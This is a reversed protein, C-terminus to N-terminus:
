PKNVWFGTGKGLTKSHLTFDLYGKDAIYGALGGSADLIPAYFYWESLLPDWAWLSTLNLPVVEPSPPVDSLSKNFASASVDNGTAVLNWGPTLNPNSLNFSPGAQNGIVTPLKANLWYGEGPNIVSLVGYGKSEAYTQLPGAALSPAYFQWRTSAADWKWASTVVATDGFLAAVSISQKLSNGLLNWGQVVILPYAAGPGVVIAQTVQAAALYDANGAQNANVLCDGESVGTVTQGSVTCVAPTSSGLTLTSGSGGGTASLAGSGGVFLVPASGFHISQSAQGVSFTQLIQAAANTFPDGAQNATITCIGASIGTVSNGTVRCVSPTSTSFSVSLGATSAASITGVAEVVISPAVGFSLTQNGKSPTVAGSSVSAASTGLSNSATVSFTYAVGNTLGTVTHVLASTGAQADVGGAPVSTVTYAIIGTGGQVTPALLNVTAQANGATVSSITPVGPIELLSQKLIFMDTDGVKSLPPTSLGAGTFFGGLYVKSGADIPISFALGNAGIGGYNKAWTISGSGDLKLTFPDKVGMRTLAPTTLNAGSFSGSLFINGNSDLAIGNPGAFAGAGGFSHAWITNGSADLKLAFVDGDGIRPLAPTSLDAAYFSGAVFVNSSADVTIGSGWAWAGAGGFHKTWLTKGSEDLKLVFADNDGIQSPPLSGGWGLGIGGTVYVNRNGDVAVGGTWADQSGTGQYGKTWLISGSPDLKAVTAALTDLSGAGMYVNGQNDAVPPGEFWLLGATGYSRAWVTNGAADLKLAIASKTGSNALM